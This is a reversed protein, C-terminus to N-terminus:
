LPALPGKGEYPSEGMFLWWALDHLRGYAAEYYAEGHPRPFNPHSSWERVFWDLYWFGEAVWREISPRGASEAACGEMALVLASFAGKDWELESRLRLLFSGEEAEFERRLVALPDTM